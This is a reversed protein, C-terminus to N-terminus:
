PAHSPESAHEVQWTITSGSHYSPSSGALSSSSSMSSRAKPRVWVERRPHWIRMVSASSPSTTLSGAAVRLMITSLYASPVPLPRHRGLQAPGVHAVDRDL